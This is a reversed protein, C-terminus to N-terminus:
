NEVGGHNGGRGIGEREDRAIRDKLEAFANEWSGFFKGAEQLMCPEFITSRICWDGKILAIYFVEQGFDFPLKLRNQRDQM